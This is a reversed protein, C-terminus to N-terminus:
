YPKGGLFLELKVSNNSTASVITLVARFYPHNMDPIVDMAKSFPFTASTTTVPTATMSAVLAMTNVDPTPGGWIAVAVTLTTGAVGVGSLVLDGILDKVQLGWNQVESYYTTGPSAASTFQGSIVSKWVM